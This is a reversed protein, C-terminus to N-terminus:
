STDAPPLNDLLQMTRRDSSWTKAVAFGMLM